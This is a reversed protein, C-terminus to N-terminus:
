SKKEPSLDVIEWSANGSDDKDPEVLLSDYCDKIMDTLSKILENKNPCKSFIEDILDQGVAPHNKIFAATFVAEIDNMPKELFNDLVFGSRELIKISMRNYELTYNVGNYTLKIQKDM